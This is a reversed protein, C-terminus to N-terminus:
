EINQILSRREGETYLNEKNRTYKKASSGRISGERGRVYCEDENEILERRKKVFQKYVDSM